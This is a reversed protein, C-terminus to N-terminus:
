YLNQPADIINESKPVALLKFNKILIIPLQNTNTNFTLDNYLKM